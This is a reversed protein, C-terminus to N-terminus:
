PGTPDVRGCLCTWRLRSGRGGRAHGAGYDFTVSSRGFRLGSEPASRSARMATLPSSVSRWASHSERVAWRSARDSTTASDVSLTSRSGLLSAAWPDGGPKRESNSEPQCASRVVSAPSIVTALKAPGAKEDPGDDDDGDHHKHDPEVPAPAGRRIPALLGSWRPGLCRRQTGETRACRSVEADMVTHADTFNTM